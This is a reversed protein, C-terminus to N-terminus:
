PGALRTTVSRGLREELRALAVGRDIRARILALERDRRARHAALVESLTGEGALYASRADNWARRAAPVLTSQLEAARDAAAIHEAWAERVDRTISERAAELDETIALRRSIMGRVGASDRASWLPFSVGLTAMVPEEAGMPTGADQPEGAFVGQVGLTLRPLLQSRAVAAQVRQEERREDLVLITPNVLLAAAVLAPAPATAVLAPLRITGPLRANGSRGLAANLTAETIPRLALVTQRRGRGDGLATELGALDAAAEDRERAVREVAELESVLQGLLVATADLGVLEHVISRVSRAVDLRALVLRYWSARIAPAWEAAEDGVTGPWPVEQQFDRAAQEAQRASLEDRAQEVSLAPDPLGAVGIRGVARRWAQVASVITPHHDIAFAILDALEVETAVDLDVRRRRDVPNLTLEAAVDISPARSFLNATPRHRDPTLPGTCGALLSAALAM